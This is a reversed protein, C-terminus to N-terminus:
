YSFYSIMLITPSLRDLESTREHQEEYQMIYDMIVSKSDHFYGTQKEEWM